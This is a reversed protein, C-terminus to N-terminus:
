KCSSIKDNEPLFNKQVYFICSNLLVDKGSLPFKENNFKYFSPNELHAIKFSTKVNKQKLFTKKVTKIFTSNRQGQTYM